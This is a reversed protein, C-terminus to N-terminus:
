KEFAYESWDPKKFRNPKIQQIYQTPEPLPPIDTDCLVDIDINRRKLEKKAFQRLEESNTFNFYLIFLYETTKIQIDKERYKQPLDTFFPAPKNKISFYPSKESTKNKNLGVYNVRKQFM